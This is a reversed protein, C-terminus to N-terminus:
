TTALCVMETLHRQLVGMEPWSNQAKIFPMCLFHFFVATYKQNAFRLERHRPM